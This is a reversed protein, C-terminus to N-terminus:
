NPSIYKNKAKRTQFPGTRYEFLDIYPEYCEPHDHLGLQYAKSIKGLNQKITEKIEESLAPTPPIGEQLEIKILFHHDGEHHYTKSIQFSQINEYVKKNKLLAVEIQQPFINVGNLSIVNDTRGAIWLFPLKISNDKYEKEYTEKFDPFEKTLLALMENYSKKGGLDHINYKIKCGIHGKTLVTAHFEKKRPLNNIYFRLPNYQFFMPLRKAGFLKEVKKPHAIFLERIYQSFPTEVGMGTELDSAGYASVIKAGDKLKSQVYKRWGPIFGEGGVILDVNHKKWDIGGTDILHKIFPPYGAILYNHKPGMTKITQIIQKVDPGINKVIGLPEFYYCFSYSTTWAGLSWASIVIYRKNEGFLYKTEFEVDQRIVQEEEMSRFWNTPLKGTSGSSEVLLGHKPLQNKETRELLSYQMVYNNKDVVPLKQNFDEIKHILEL